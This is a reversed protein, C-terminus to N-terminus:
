TALLLYRAALLEPLTVHESAAVEELVKLLAEEGTNSRAQNHGDRCRMEGSDFISKGKYKVNTKDTSFDRGHDDDRHICLDGLEFTYSYDNDENDSFNSASYSWKTGKATVGDQKHRSDDVRWDHWSTPGLM